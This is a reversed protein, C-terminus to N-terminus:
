PTAEYSGSRSLPLKCLVRLRASARMYRKLFAALPSLQSGIFFPCHSSFRVSRRGERIEPCPPTQIQVTEKMSLHQVTSEPEKLMDVMGFHFQSVASACDNELRQINKGAGAKFGERYASTMLHIFIDLDLVIPEKKDKM